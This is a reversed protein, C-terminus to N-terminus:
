LFRGLQGAEVKTGIEDGIGDCLALMRDGDPDLMAFSCAVRVSQTFDLLPTPYVEYHQLISWQIYKRRKIENAGPFNERRFGDVLRRVSSKLMDFRLALEERSLREGRYISPYFSSARAKNKYDRGQGRFFLLHDNNAYALQILLCAINELSERGFQRTPM